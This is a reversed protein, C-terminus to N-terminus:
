SASDSTRYFIHTGLQATPLLNRSWYPNVYNAHYHTAQDTIDEWRGSLAIYSIRTAVDWAELNYATEALGDCAFSFQCRHRLQENQYVVSCISSPYRPDSVRNLVVQAVALQGEVPESRAEFYIAQTLCVGDETNTEDGLVNLALILSELDRKSTFTIKKAGELGNAANLGQINVSNAEPLVNYGEDKQPLLFPIVLAFTFIIGIIRM